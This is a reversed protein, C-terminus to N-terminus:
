YTYTLTLEFTLTGNNVVLTSPFRNTSNYISFNINGMPDNSDIPPTDQDFLEINMQTVMDTVDYPVGGSLVISQGTVNTNVGTSIITNTGQKVVAFIDPDTNLALDWTSAGDLAPYKTVKIGTITIKTPTRQTGCDAGSYGSPCSCSGNVCTGGNLCVTNACPDADTKKKKCGSGMLLTFAALFIFLLKKM